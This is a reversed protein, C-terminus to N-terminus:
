TRYIYGQFAGMNLGPGVAPAQTGEDHHRGVYTAQRQVLLIDQDGDVVRQVRLQDNYYDRNSSNVTYTETVREEV